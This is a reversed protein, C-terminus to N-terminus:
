RLLQLFQQRYKGQEIFFVNGHGAQKLTWFWKKQAPIQSFLDMGSQYPIVPDKTSHIVLTPMTITALDKQATCDSSILRSLLWNTKLRAVEQPDRFTSDLVLLSIEDKFKFEELARLAIAGGLSQTYVIFKKYHGALYQNYAIQLFKLGDEFMGSPSPTGTSLGYGRYDFVLLDSKESTLWALTEFHSTMNEANGHFMLVLNEPNASKSKLNWAVLKTGDFAPVVFEHYDIGQDKPNAHLYKDPQYIISTCSSVFFLLIFKFIIDM